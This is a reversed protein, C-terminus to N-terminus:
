RLLACFSFISRCLQRLCRPFIGSEGGEVKGAFRTGCARLLGYLFEQDSIWVDAQCIVLTVKREPALNLHHSGDKEEGQGRWLALDPRM